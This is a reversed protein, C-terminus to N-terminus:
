MEKIIEVVNPYIRLDIEDMEPKYELAQSLKATLWAQYADEETKFTGLHTSKGTRNCIRAQYSKIGSSRNFTVGTKCKGVKRGIAIFSNLDVSVFICTEPSYVKNGKFLLDKDLQYDTKYNDEYYKAFVQFNHWGEHVSCGKYTSYQHKEYYCRSLMGSWCSYEKTEKGGVYSKYDGVGLFGVGYVSPLLRDKVNGERLSQSRAKTVYGTDLFKILVDSCGRYKVVEFWGYNNSEFRDGVKIIAM